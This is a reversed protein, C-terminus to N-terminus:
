SGKLANLRKLFHSPSEIIVGQFSKLPLLHRKDGTVLVDCEGIIAVELVMSDPQYHIAKIKGTPDYVTSASRLRDRLHDVKDQSQSFKHVLVRCVEDLINPGTVHDFDFDYLRKLIELPIGDYVVGSIIVNADLCVTLKPNNPL